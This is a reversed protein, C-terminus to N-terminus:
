IKADTGLHVKILDKEVVKFTSLHIASEPSPSKMERLKVAEL